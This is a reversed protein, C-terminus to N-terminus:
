RHGGPQSQNLASYQTLAVRARIAAHRLLSQTRPMDFKKHHAGVSLAAVPRQSRTFIPAAVATIGPSPGGMSTSVGRRRIEVLEAQLDPPLLHHGLGASHWGARVGFSSTLDSDYALFIKGAASTHLFSAEEIRNIVHGYQRGYVTDVFEVTVEGPIGLGVLHHTEEYLEALVPKIARRLLKIERHDRSSLMSLMVPGLLYQDGDRRVAGHAHLEALLRHVTSKPLGTARCLGSLTAPGGSERVAKLIAVVRGITRNRNAPQLDPGKATEHEHVM